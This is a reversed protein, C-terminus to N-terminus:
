GDWEGDVEGIEGQGGGSEIGPGGREIEDERALSSPPWGGRLRMCCAIGCWGELRPVDCLPKMFEVKNSKRGREVAAFLVFFRVAGM